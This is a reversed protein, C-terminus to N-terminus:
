YKGRLKLWAPETSTSIRTDYELNAKFFKRDLDDVTWGHRIAGEMLNVAEAFSLMYRAQISYLCLVCLDYKSERVLARENPNLKDFYEMFWPEKGSVLCFGQETM